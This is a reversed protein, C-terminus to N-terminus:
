TNGSPKVVDNSGVLCRDGTIFYALACRGSLSSSRLRCGLRHATEKLICQVEHTDNGHDM